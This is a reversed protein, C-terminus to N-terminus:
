SSRFVRIFLSYFLEIDKELTGSSCSSKEKFLCNELIEDLLVLILYNLSRPNFISFIMSLFILHRKNTKDFLSFLFDENDVPELIKLLSHRELSSLVWASQKERKSDLLEQNARIYVDELVQRVVREEHKSIM